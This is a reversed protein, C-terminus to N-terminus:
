ICIYIVLFVILYFCLLGHRFEDLFIFFLQKNESINKGYFFLEDLFFSRIPIPPLGVSHAALLTFSCFRFFILRVTFSISSVAMLNIIM